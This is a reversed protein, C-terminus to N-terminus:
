AASKSWYGQGVLSITVINGTYACTERATGMVYNETDSAGQTAVVALGNGDSMIPQGATFTGGTIMKVAGRTVVTCGVGQAVPSDVLVGVCPAGATANVKIQGLTSDATVSIFVFKYKGVTPDTASGTCGVASAAAGPLVEQYLEYAM